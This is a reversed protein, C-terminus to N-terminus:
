GASSSSRGPAWTAPSTASRTWHRRRDLLRLVDADLLGHRERWRCHRVPRASRPRPRVRPHLRGRRREGAPDHVQRGLLRQRRDPHRRAPQLRGPRDGPREYYAYWSHSWIATAWRAAVPRRARAPMSRSSPTSTATPSTSTATATTTTAIGSTSSALYDNIEAPTKGAAIQDDYWGNLSDTWSSWVNTRPRRRLVGRREPVMVWDTVDGAVTYRNSSQEIYFNRMSNAGPADNFLMDMYYDRNFDPVWIPTNNVTRDPEPMSNHPFDAFEGLVTWIPGEGERALEVYQGKAVENVKGPAKGNLKAELAVQKLDTQRATMPDSRNDSRVTPQGIADDAPPSMGIASPATMAMVLASVALLLLIRSRHITVVRLM